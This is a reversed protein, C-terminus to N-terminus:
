LEHMRRAPNAVASASDSKSTQLRRELDARARRFAANPGSHSTAVVVHPMSLAEARSLRPGVKWGAASAYEEWELRRRTQGARELDAAIAVRKSRSLKARGGEDLWAGLRHRVWGPVHRLEAVGRWTYTWSSGDARVDLAHLVDAAVWGADLFPQLLWRLYWATMRRLPASEHRLRDCLQLRDRKTRPTAHLGWTPSIRLRGRPSPRAERTRSPSEPDRRPLSGSPPDNVDKAHDSSQDHASKSSSRKPACLVWVAARNGRGDDNLGANTGKRYRVTTGEEVTGLWGNQRLWRVWRKVTALSLGTKEVVRAITPRSCMTKWHAAWGIINAVRFLNSYGDARLELVEADARLSRLWTRQSGARRSGRPVAAAIVARLPPTPINLQNAEHPRATRPAILAGGRPATTRYTM